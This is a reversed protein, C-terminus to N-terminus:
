RAGAPRRLYTVAVAAVIGPVLALAMVCPRTSFVPLSFTAQVLAMRGAEWALVTLLVVVALSGVLLAGPLRWSPTRGLLHDVREPAIGVAGHPHASASFSLLASALTARGGRSMRVAADDAALEAMACYRDSLRRLVPLFFFAHSFARAVAIRLPDRRARHHEEHALVAELEDRELHRLAGTSLFIRPRLFGACFAQPQAEDVLMLSGYSRPRRAAIARSFRRQARVEAAAAWILQLLVFLGLAALVLVVVAAANTRPYSFSEHLVTFRRVPEHPGVRISNTGDVLAVAVAALAAAAIILSLQFLRSAGADLSSRRRRRSPL